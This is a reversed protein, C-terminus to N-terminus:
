EHPLFEKSRTVFDTLDGCSVWVVCDRCVQYSDWESDVQSQRVARARDSSFAGSLGLKSVNGINLETNWDVSCFTSSGCHDVAMAYWMLMCPFRKNSQEDTIGVDVAGSWSHVGTVQVQDAVGEWRDHFRQLEDSSVGDFEMIKVRVFPGAVGQRERMELLTEVGKEVQPLADVRKLRTFTDPLAADISVTIDDIGSDLIGRVREPTLLLGNTNVHITKAVNRKKAYAAMESFQPHLLPEGDKHLNFMILEHESAEDVLRRYLDFTMDGHQKAAMERPCCTCRLNCRSTTELNLVLPFEPSTKGTIVEPRLCTLTGEVYDEHMPRHFASTPGRGM